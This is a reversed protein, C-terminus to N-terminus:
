GHKFRIDKVARKGLKDNLRKVIKAKEMMLAHHVTPQIMRVILVNRSISDPATQAALFDGVVMRWAAAIEEMQLREGIGCQAVIKGALDAASMLPNDMLPGDPVGRWAAILAHRQRQATTPKRSTM